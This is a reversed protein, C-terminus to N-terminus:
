CNQKSPSTWYITAQEQLMVSQSSESQLKNRSQLLKREWSPPSNDYSPCSCVWWKWQWSKCTEARLESITDEAALKWESFWSKNLIETMKPMQSKLVLHVSESDCFTQLKHNCRECLMLMMPTFKVLRTYQPLARIVLQSTVKKWQCQQCIVKIM